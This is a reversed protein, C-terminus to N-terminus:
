SFLRSRAEEYRNLTNGVVDSPLTPGPTSKNWRGANVLTLLYDRVYQKDFSPPSQGPAYLEAPWFRSSDPTLAEDILIPEGDPEDVPTGFEFKTDAIIVGRERASDAGRSYIELSLDRLRRMVDAGAVDCAQEFSINEDHAGREAKTAPTFIPEPLKDAEILGAPLKVGCVAGTKQYDVWGSGVLYGRVVCEIPVVRCARAITVRGEVQAQQEANLGPLDTADVSLLHTPVIGLAEIWRFWRTSIDTLLRGKGPIPTPLVVDFASIRDTAIIVLKDADTHGYVDRVKGHRRNPLPLHTEAVAELTEMGGDYFAHRENAHFM